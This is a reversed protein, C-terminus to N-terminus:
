DDFFFDDDLEESNAILDTITIIGVLKNDEVVPLRKIGKKKMLGAASDLTDNPKTTVVNKSMIGSIKVNSNFHRVLDTDTIIGKIKGDSLFILSGINKAGMIKAAENLGIDKEVVFPQKMVDKVRM